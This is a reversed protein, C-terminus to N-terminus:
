GIQKLIKNCIGIRVEQADHREMEIFFNKDPHYYIDHKKGHRKLRWCKNEAIRKLESWKM